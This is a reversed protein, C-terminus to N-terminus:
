RLSARRGYYIASRPSSVRYGVAFIIGVPAGGFPKHQLRDLDLVALFRQLGVVQHLIRPHLDPQRLGHRGLAAHQLDVDLIVVLNGAYPAPAGRPPHRLLSFDVVHRLPIRAHADIVIKAAPVRQGVDAALKVQLISVEVIVYGHGALHDHGARALQDIRLIHKGFRLDVRSSCARLLSLVTIIRVAASTFSGALLGFAPPVSVQCKWM